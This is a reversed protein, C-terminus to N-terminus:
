IGGSELKKSGTMSEEKISEKPFSDKISEKIISEKIIHSEERISEKIM